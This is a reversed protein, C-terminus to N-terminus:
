EGIKGEEVTETEFKYDVGPEGTEITKIIEYTGKETDIDLLLEKEVPVGMADEVKKSIEAFLDSNADERAADYDDIAKKYDAPFNEEMWAEHDEGDASWEVKTLKPEEGSKDFYIIVEGAAGSMEFAKEKLSVMESTYLRAYAKAEGNEEDIGVIKAAAFAEDPLLDAYGKTIESDAVQKMLADYEAQSLGAHDDEEAAAEGYKEFDIAGAENGYQEYFSDYEEEAVEKGDIMFKAEDTDEEPYHHAAYYDATAVQVLEGNKLNYLIIHSEGSLRSYYSLTADVKGWIWYEGGQGGIEQLTKIDGNYDSILCAKDEAGIFHKETTSLFLEDVGDLNVDLLRYYPYEKQTAEDALIEKYWDEPATNETEDVVQTTAEQTEAEQKQSSGCGVMGMVMVLTIIGAIIRKKM